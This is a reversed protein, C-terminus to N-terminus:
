EKERGFLKKVLAALGVLGVFILKKFALIGLWLAKFFGAKAATAGAILGAIGYAAKRDSGAVYDTYRHGANFDVAALIARTQQRIMPLQHMEAVANLVLVGRRGLIRIDYNLTHRSDSGFELEKAWYLKHAARDYSPPEAWGVLRVPEFGRKRREANEAISADQMEKMLKAYNISAADDDKVYGDAEYTIVIGWGNPSLPSVQAPILM